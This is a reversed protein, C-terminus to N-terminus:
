RELRPLGSGSNKRTHSTSTCARNSTPPISIARRWSTGSIRSPRPADPAVAVQEGGRLGLYREAGDDLSEAYAFTDMRWTLLAVGDRLSEALVAPGAVRQLYLQQAFDEVLTRVPVHDGRWLPVDGIAKRVITPGLNTVLLQDRRLKAGARVALPDNGSLRSAQWEM